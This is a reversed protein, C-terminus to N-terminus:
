SPCPKGAPVAACSHFDALLVLGSTHRGALALLKFDAPVVPDRRNKLTLTTLSASRALAREGIRGAEGPACYAEDVCLMALEPRFGAALGTWSSTITAGALSNLGLRRLELAATGSLQPWAQAALTASLPPVGDVGVEVENVALTALPTSCAADAHLSIRLSGGDRVLSNVITDGASGDPLPLVADDAVRLDGARADLSRAAAASPGTRWLSLRQVGLGEFPKYLALTSRQGTTSSQTVRACALGPLAPIGIVLSRSYRDVTVGSDLRRERQAVAFATVQLADVHGLLKWAGAEQTVAMQRGLRRVSGDAPQLDVNVRCVPQGERQVCRGAPSAALTAGWLGDEAAWACLAAAVQARGSFSQRPTELRAQTAMAAAMGTSSGACASPSAWASGLRTFLVGIGSTDVATSSATAAQASMRRETGTAADATSATLIPGTAAAPAAVSEAPAPMSEDGGGCAALLLVMVGPLARSFWHHMPHIASFRPM